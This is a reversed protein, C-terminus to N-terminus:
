TAFLYLRTPPALPVLYKHISRQCERASTGFRNAISGASATADCVPGAVAQLMFKM